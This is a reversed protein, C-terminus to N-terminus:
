RQHLGILRVLDRSVLHNAWAVETARAVLLRGTNGLAHGSSSQVGWAIGRMAKVTGTFERRLSVPVQLRSFTEILERYYWLTGDRKGPVMLLTNRNAVVPLPHPSVRSLM